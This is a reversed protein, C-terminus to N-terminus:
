ALFLRTSRKQHIVQWGNLFCFVSLRTLPFLQSSILWLGVSSTIRLSWGDMTYRMVQTHIRTHLELPYLSISIFAFTLWLIVWSLSIRRFCRHNLLLMWPCRFVIISQLCFSLLTGISEGIMWIDSLINRNWSRIIIKCLGRRKMQNPSKRKPVESEIM